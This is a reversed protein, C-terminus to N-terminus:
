LERGRMKEPLGGGGGSFNEPPTKRGVGFPRREVPDVREGHDSARVRTKGGGRELSSDWSLGGDDDDDY